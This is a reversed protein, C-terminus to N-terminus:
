VGSLSQGQTMDQGLPPTPLYSLVAHVAMEFFFILFAREFSFEMKEASVWAITRASSM